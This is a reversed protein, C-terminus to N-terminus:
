ILQFEIPADLDVQSLNRGDRDHCLMSTQCLEPGRAWILQDYPFLQHVRRRDQEGRIGFCDVGQAVQVQLCIARGNDFRWWLHEAEGHIRQLAVKDVDAYGPRVFPLSALIEEQRRTVRARHRVTVEHELRGGERDTKAHAAELDVALGILGDREHLL